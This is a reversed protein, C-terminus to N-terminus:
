NAIGRAELLALTNPTRSHIVDDLVALVLELNTGWASEGFGRVIRTASDNARLRRRIKFYRQGNNEKLTKVTAEIGVEPTPYNKVGISNYNTAGPLSLTTNCPNNKASGGEAQLEAAWARRTHLTVEAGLRKTVEATFVGREMSWAASTQYCALLVVVALLALVARLALSRM